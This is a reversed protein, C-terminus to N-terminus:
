DNWILPFLLVSLIWILVLYVWLLGMSKEWATTGVSSVLGISAQRIILFLPIMLPLGLIATLAGSSDSLQAAMSSLFTVCAAICFTGTLLVAFYPKPNELEIPDFFSLAAYALLVFIFALILSYIQKALIVSRARFHHYYFQQRHPSEGLFAKSSLIVTVFLIVVWFVANWMRSSMNEELTHILFVTSLMYTLYGLLVQKKRLELQLDKRLILGIEQWSSIM